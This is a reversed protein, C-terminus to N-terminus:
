AKTTLIIWSRTWMPIVIVISRTILLIVVIKDMMVLWMSVVMCLEQARHEEDLPTLNEIPQGNALEVFLQIPANQDSRNGCYLAVMAEDEDDDVLEMKTFKIPDTSVSFKYFLKSIRRECCRVIKAIIMKKIDDFSVNRHFRM